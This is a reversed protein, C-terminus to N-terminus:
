INLLSKYICTHVHQRTATVRKQHRCLKIVELRFEFSKIKKQIPNLIDIVVLYLNKM